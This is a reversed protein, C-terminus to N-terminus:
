SLSPAPSAINDTLTQSSDGEQLLPPNDLLGILRTLAVQPSRDRTMLTTIRDDTTLSVWAQLRTLPNTPGSKVLDSLVIEHGDHFYNMPSMGFFLELQLRLRDRVPICKGAELREHMIVIRFKSNATCGGM